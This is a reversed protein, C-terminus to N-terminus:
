GEKLNNPWVESEVLSFSIGPMDGASEPEEQSLM